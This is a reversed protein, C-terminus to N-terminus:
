RGAGREGAGAMDIFPVPLSFWFEAGGHVSRRVGIEGGHQKIISKSIALGLGTGGISAVSPSRYFKDFVRDMDDLAVGKGRDSVAITVYPHDVAGRIDIPMGEPTYKVSNELLNLVVTAVQVQDCEVFLPESPFDTVIKRGNLLPGLQEIAAAAIDTLDCTEKRIAQRESEIRAMDLLNRVRASLQDVQDSATQIFSRMEGDDWRVEPDLMGSLSIRLSALPTRLDHSVNALFDSKARDAERLRANRKVLQRALKQQKYYFSGVAWAALLVLLFAPGLIYGIRRVLFRMSELATEAPLVSMVILGSRPAVAYGVLEREPVAPPFLMLAGHGLRRAEQLPENAVGSEAPSAPAAGRSTFTRGARDMILVGGDEHYDAGVPAPLAEPVWAAVLYGVSNGSAKVPVPLLLDHGDSSIARGQAAADALQSSDLNEALGSPHSSAAIQRSGNLDYIAIARLGAVDALLTKLVVAGASTDSARTAAAIQPRAAAYRLAHFAAACQDDLVRAGMQATLQNCRMEARVRMTNSTRVTEVIYLAMWGTFLAIAAVALGTRWTRRNAWRYHRDSRM